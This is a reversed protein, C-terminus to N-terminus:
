AAKEAGSRVMPVSVSSKTLERLADPLLCAADARRRKMAHHAIGVRRSSARRVRCRGHGLSVVQQSDARHARVTLSSLRSRKICNSSSFFARSSAARDGGPM